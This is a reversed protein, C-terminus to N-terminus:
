KYNDSTLFNWPFKTEEVVKASLLQHKAQQFSCTILIEGNHLSKIFIAPLCLKCLLAELPMPRRQSIDAYSVCLYSFRNLQMNKNRTLTWHKMSLLLRGDNLSGAKGTAKSGTSVTKAFDKAKNMMSLALATESSTCTFSSFADENYRQLLSVQRMASCHKPIWFPDQKPVSDQYKSCDSAVILQMIRWILLFYLPIFPYM